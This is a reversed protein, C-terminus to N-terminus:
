GVWGALMVMAVGAFVMVLSSVAGEEPHRQHAKATGIAHAAAGWMAGRALRSRPAIWVLVWEGTLIGCIGTLLVVLSTLGQSAGVAGAAQLAFPTSISRLLMSRTLDPPLAFLRSLTWSSALGLGISSLVGSLISVPYRRLIERQQYIPVAFAITAPGLLWILWRSYRNYVPFPVRLLVLSVILIAPVVFSPMLWLRPHRMHVRRAFLYAVLTALLCIAGVLRENM